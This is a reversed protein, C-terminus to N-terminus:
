PRSLVLAHGQWGQRELQSNDWYVCGTNPDGICLFQQYSGLVAVFHQPKPLHLISYTGPRQHEAILANYSLTKGQCTFGLSLASAKLNMLSTGDTTLLTQKKLLALSTKVGSSECILYLSAPGCESPLPENKVSHVPIQCDHQSVQWFCAFIAILM